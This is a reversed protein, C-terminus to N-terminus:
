RMTNSEPSSYNSWEGPAGSELTGTDTPYAHGSPGSLQGSEGTSFMQMEGSRSGQSGAADMGDHGAPGSVHGDGDQPAMQMGGNHNEMSVYPQGSSEQGAHGQTMGGDSAAPAAGYGGMNRSDGSHGGGGHDMDSGHQETVGHSMDSGMPAPSDNDRPRQNVQEVEICEVPFIKKLPVSVEDLVQRISKDRLAEVPINIGERQARNYVLYKNVSLGAKEAQARAERSDESVVVTGNVQLSVLEESIVRRLEDERISGAGDKLPVISALMLNQHEKNIYGRKGAERIISEVAVYLDQGNIGAEALLTEAEQNLPRAKIVTGDRNVALEASPNIDLAVYAVAAGPDFLPYFLGIAAVLVLAAAATFFATVPKGAKSGVEIIDGIEPTKGPMPFRVFDGEDTYVVVNKGELGM